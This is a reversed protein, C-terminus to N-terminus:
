ISLKFSLALEDKPFDKQMALAEEMPITVLRGHQLAIVCNGEGKALTNVAMAGMLSANYRDKCTPSGGRQMYGLITARTEIGTKAEINKALANSNGIGEANIIINHNKGKRRNSLIRDILEDETVEDGEPIIIEDAGSSIGAWLAIYGANRGMVEVVSVRQHSSSTDKIKDIAEMATNVATDFGITYETCAIDMDITGPIGVVNIGSRSIKQAGQFSGDGGIVVLAEIGYKKCQEVAREIGEEEMMEKCRATGLYTGGETLINSVDPQIVRSVKGELLGKYGNQIGIVEIGSNCAVRVVARICANMGPADGGSTLVGIRKLEGMVGGVLIVM